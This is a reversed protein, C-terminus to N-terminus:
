EGMNILTGKIRAKIFSYCFLGIGFIFYIFSILYADKLNEYNISGNLLINRTEDFIYVLPLGKAITQFFDPLIEIPYYICGLPALLFLSSWAINEFSPGFRMLGASVFLGLTIGFM